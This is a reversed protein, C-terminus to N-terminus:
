FKSVARWIVGYARKKGSVVKSWATEKAARVAPELARELSCIDRRLINFALGNGCKGMFVGGRTSPGPVRCVYVSKAKVYRAGAKHRRYELIKKGLIGGKSFLGLQVYSPSNRKFFFGTPFYLTLVLKFRQFFRPLDLLLFIFFTRGAREVFQFGTQPFRLRAEACLNPLLTLDKVFLVAIQVFCLSKFYFETCFHLILLM